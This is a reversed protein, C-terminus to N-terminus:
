FFLARVTSQKNVGYPYAVRGIRVKASSAHKRNNATVRNRRGAPFRSASFAIGPMWRRTYACPEPTFFSFDGPNRERAKREGNNKKRRERTERDHRNARRDRKSGISRRRMEGM